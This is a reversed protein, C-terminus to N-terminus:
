NSGSGESPVSDTKEPKSGNSEEKPTETFNDLNEEPASVDPYISTPTDAGSQLAKMDGQLTVLEEVQWKAKSKGMRAEIRALSVGLDGLAVVVRDRAKEIGGSNPKAIFQEIKEKVGEKARDVIRNLLWNPLAGTIANRQAKSQGIQFRVDEKRAPDMNGHVTHAKSQRFQREITIGRELDVFAATFYYAEKTEVVPRMALLANGWNRLAIRAAEISPGEIRSGGASWSYYCTEGAMAAEELCRKEVEVLSRPEPVSMAVAYGTNIQQVIQGAGPVMPLTETVVEATQEDRSM